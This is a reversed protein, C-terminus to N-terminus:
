SAAAAQKPELFKFVKVGHKDEVPTSADIDALFPYDTYGQM